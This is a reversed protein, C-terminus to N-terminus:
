SKMSRSLRGSMLLRHVEEGFLEQLSEAWREESVSYFEKNLPDWFCELEFSYFMDSSAAYVWEAFGGGDDTGGHPIVVGM